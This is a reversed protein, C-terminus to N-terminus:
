GKFINIIKKNIKGELKEIIISQIYALIFSFLVIIIFTTQWNLTYKKLIFIVLIHWLYIWLSHNSVFQIIRNSLTNYNKKNNMFIILMSSILIGYSLYYLRFPYKMFQTPKFEGTKFYFYIGLVVFVLFSIICIIVNKKSKKDFLQTSIGILMYCPIIYALLYDILDNSLLRYHCMIEYLLYIIFTLLTHNKKGIKIDFFKYIPVLISIILYIRIVWVYGIGKKLVLSSFLIKKDVYCFGFLYNTIFFFMLFVWTPVVLRWFRKKLYNYYSDKNSSKLGLHASITVLLVVDFNRLQFIIGDVNSHALIICLLGILKLVDIRYDRKMNNGRETTFYYNMFKKIRIIWYDFFM